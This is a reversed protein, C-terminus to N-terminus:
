EQNPMMDASLWYTLLARKLDEKALMAPFPLCILNWASAKVHRLLVSHPDSNLSNDKPAVIRIRCARRAPTETDVRVHQMSRSIPFDFRYRWFRWFRSTLHQLIRYSSASQRTRSRLRWLRLPLPRLRARHQFWLGNRKSFCLTNRGSVATRKTQGNFQHFCGYIEVNFVLHFGRVRFSVRKKLSYKPLFVSRCTRNSHRERNSVSPIVWNTLTEQHSLIPTVSRTLRAQYSRAWVSKTFCEQYSVRPTVSKTLCEPYSVEPPMYKWM